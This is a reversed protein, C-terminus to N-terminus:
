GAQAAPKPEAVLDVVVAIAARGNPGPLELLVRSGLPVGRLKEFPDQGGASAGGLPFAAPASSYTSGAPEGTFRTAVFELVILGDGVPAGSGRALVTAIPTKPAKAGVSVTVTPASGLAGKVVVGPTVTKQPVARPDGAVGPPYAAVIDVVFELTDTGKIGARPNGSPGYGQSPPVSMLIRSGVKAGVLVQDWAPIVKGAGIVFGSPAKRDYSNDFVAGRSVQGLYDAVLLDGKNVTPGSGPRLVRSKLTSPPAADAFTLTPKDGYAGAVSPLGGGRASAGSGKPHSGCGAVSAALAASLVLLRFPSLM